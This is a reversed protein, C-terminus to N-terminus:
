DKGMVGREIGSEVGSVVAYMMVVVNVERLM